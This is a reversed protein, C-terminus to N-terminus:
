SPSMEMHIRMHSTRQIKCPANQCFVSLCIESDEALVQQAVSPLCWRDSTDIKGVTITEPSRSLRSYVASTLRRDSPTNHLSYRYGVGTHSLL